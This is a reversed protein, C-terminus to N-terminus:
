ALGELWQIWVTLHPCAARIADLGIREVLAPGHLVKQYAPYAALIRKSPATAPSNNVDEPGGCERLAATMVTTLRSSGLYDGCEGPDTYLLAEFEHLVLFSRVSTGHRSDIAEMVHCAQCQADDTEVRSSMGPVDMPLRYYDFLTTVAVVSSDRTLLTLDRNIQDWSSMGGKYNPGTRVRKTVIVSPTLDVGFEWLHPRLVRGVFAEETQGEVLVHVRNM